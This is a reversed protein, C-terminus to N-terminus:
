THGLVKTRTAQITHLQSHRLPKLLDAGICALIPQLGRPSNIQLQGIPVYKRLVMRALLIFDAIHRVGSFDSRAISSWVHCVNAYM